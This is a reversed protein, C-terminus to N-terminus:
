FAKLLREATPTDTRKKRNEPHLGGLGANDNRLSRRVVFETLTLVRVGFTLLLTMGKIQDNRKVYMPAIHLYSKLRRFVQEVRYENRYHRVAKGLSLNEKPLDTVYARWGCREKEKKIKKEDRVVGTIQYRVREVVKKERKAGGRGRGAYRIKREVEKEYEYRLFETVRHKKLIREAKEKLVAEETIQRKGRGRQPTLARIKEEANKLRKEMGKKMQEAHTPSKVIFVRERKENKEEADNEEEEEDKEDDDDDKERDKGKEKDEEDEGFVKKQKRKLTYGEAIVTEEGKDNEATM